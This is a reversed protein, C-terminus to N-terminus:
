WKMKGEQVPRTKASEAAALEFFYRLRKKFKEPLDVGYKGQELKFRFAISDTSAISLWLSEPVSLRLSSTVSKDNGANITKTTGAFEFQEGDLIWYILGDPKNQSKLAFDVVVSQESQENPQYRYNAKIRSTSAHYRESPQDQKEAKFQQKLRITQANNQRETTVVIRSQMTCSGFLLAAFLIPIALKM